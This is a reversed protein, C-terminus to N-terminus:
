RVMGVSAGGSRLSRVFLMTTLAVAVFLAIALVSGTQWDFGAGFADAVSNGYLFGGTGGVLTPTVYEGIVPIFAFAFGAVVGPLTLPLTITRFTVLRRAGLDAAAEFLRQDLSTLSVFIPLVVFPLWVYILVVTVATTSYIFQIPQGDANIGTYALFSNFVGNESLVVKWALVRLLFSTWFPVMVVLLLTFRRRGALMALAYAVPYALLVAVVGVILATRISKWLLPFYISSSFFASWGEVNFTPDDPFVRILGVSYLALLIIPTVFLLILWSAPTILLGARVAADKRQNTM